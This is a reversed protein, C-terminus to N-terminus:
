IAARVIVASRLATAVMITRVHLLLGRQLYEWRSKLSRSLSGVRARRSPKMPLYATGGWSGVFLEFGTGM